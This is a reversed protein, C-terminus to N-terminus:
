LLFRVLAEWEREQIYHTVRSKDIHLHESFGDIYPALNNHSSEERMKRSLGNIFANWKFYSKKIERMSNRLHPDSFIYGLFRLPHIHHIKKGKKDLSKKELGLMLPNKEAMTTILKYIIRKEGETLELGYYLDLQSIATRHVLGRELPHRPFGQSEEATLSFFSCVLAMLGFFM